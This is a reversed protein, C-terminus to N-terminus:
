WKTDGVNPGFLEGSSGGSPEAKSNRRSTIMRDVYEIAPRHVLAHLQLEPLGAEAHGISCVLSAGDWVLAKATPLSDNVGLSVELEFGRYLTRKGTFEESM